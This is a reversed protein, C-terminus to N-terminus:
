ENLERLGNCLNEIEEKTNMETVTILLCNSLNKYFRGIPIGALIKKNLSLEKVTEMSNKKTEIVFENFTPSSFKLKVGPITSLKNRTYASKDYNIRAIKRIGQKGLSSLYIAAALACLGENTCINSTSKERRIHQERASLTLVFAREGNKDTTEGVIRGPMSRLFKSKSVLVGLYPGGFGPPLGLSQGEGATIDANFMGPPKLLGYAIPESFVAVLLAGNKHIISECTSLDEIIGFFNPTQIVACATNKDIISELKNVDTKGQKDFPIEFVEASHGTLPGSLYTKIVRRYEPNVTESIIIKLKKTTRLAMLVAEAASSAGDYMSANSVDMAILGCMFTQYEFIAQLTGQSIEPQYPTYATYFESRGTLHSIISPIFHHYTGGGLFSAYEQVHANLDSMNKMRKILASESLPGPLNLKEELLLPINKFMDAESKLGIEKIMSEINDKTNPIYRMTIIRECKSQKM